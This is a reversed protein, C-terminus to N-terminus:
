IISKNSQFSHRSLPRNYGLYQFFKNRESRKRVSEWDPLSPNQNGSLHACYPGGIRAIAVAEDVTKWAGWTGSIRTTEARCQLYLAYVPRALFMLPVPQKFCFSNRRGPSIGNKYTRVVGKDVENESLLIFFFNLFRNAVIPRSQKRLM